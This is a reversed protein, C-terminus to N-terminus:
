EARELRTGPPVTEFLESRLESVHKTGLHTKWADEDVWREFLVFEGSSGSVRYVEYALCGAEKCSLEALRM